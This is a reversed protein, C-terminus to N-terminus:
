AQMQIIIFLSGVLGKSSHGWKKLIKYTMRRILPTENVATALMMGGVILHIAPSAFGSFVVSTNNGHFLIMLVFILLATLGIPIPELAWLLVGFCVIATMVRAEYSFAEPLFFFLSIFVFSALLLKIIQKTQMKNSTTNNQM